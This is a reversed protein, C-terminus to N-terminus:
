AVLAMKARPPAAPVTYCMRMPALRLEVVSAGAVDLVAAGDTWRLGPEPVHWGQALRLNDLPVPEDDLRLQAVPVGLRRCDTSEPDLEAPAARRSAIRLTRTNDPLAICLWEGFVQPEVKEGDDAFFCVAPHDTLIYGLLPLRQRM